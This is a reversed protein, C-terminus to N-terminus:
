AADKGLANKVKRVYEGVQEPSMDDSVAITSKGITLKITGKKAKGLLYDVLAKVCAGLVTSGSLAVLLQVTTPDISHAKDPSPQRVTVTGHRDIARLRQAAEVPLTNRLSPDDECVITAVFKM